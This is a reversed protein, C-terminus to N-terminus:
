TVQVEIGAQREDQKSASDIADLAPLVDPVRVARRHGVQQEGHQVLGVNRMHVLEAVAGASEIQRQRGFLSRFHVGLAPGELVNGTDGPMGRRCAQASNCADPLSAAPVPGARRYWRLGSWDSFM